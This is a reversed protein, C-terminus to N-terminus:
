LPIIHVSSYSWINYKSALSGFLRGWVATPGSYFFLHWIGKPLLAELDGKEETAKRRAWVQVNWMWIEMRRSGVNYMIVRKRLREEKEIRVLSLVV